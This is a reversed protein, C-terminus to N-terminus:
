YIHLISDISAGELNSMNVQEFFGLGGVHRTLNLVM